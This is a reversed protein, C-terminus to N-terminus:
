RVTRTGKRARHRLLLTLAAMLVLGTGITELSGSSSNTSYFDQPFVATNSFYGPLTFVTLFAAVGLAPRTDTVLWAAALIGALLFVATSRGSILATGLAPPYAPIQHVNRMQLAVAT